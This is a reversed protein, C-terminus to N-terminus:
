KLGWLKALDVTYAELYTQKNKIIREHHLLKPNDYDVRFRLDTDMNLDYLESQRERCAKMSKFKEVKIEEYKYSTIEPLDEKTLKDEDRSEQKQKETINYKSLCAEYCDECIFSVYGGTCYRAPKGCNECYGISLHEYKETIKSITKISSNYLCLGGWKQKIDQWSLMRIWRIYRHKEKRYQKGAALIEDSLQKGFAKQWGPMIM